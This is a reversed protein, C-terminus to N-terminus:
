CVKELEQTFPGPLLISGERPAMRPWCLRAVTGHGVRSRIHVCGGESDMIKKVVWLGLGTGVDKKTTFFPEFVKALHEKSIGSGNDAVVFQVMPRGSCEMPKARLHLRGDAELADLANGVLNGLVQRIEGTRASVRTDPSYHRVVEINKNKLKNRNLSLVEDFLEGVSASSREGAGRVFSLTQNAIDSARELERTAEVAYAQLAESKGGQSILFLLNSTSQLPNNLEHAITAALRGVSALRQTQLWTAEREKHMTIDRFVMVAGIMQGQNDRIPAASDSIPIQSGDRRLLVTHAALGVEEGLILAMGIPNEVTMGTNQNLLRFVEDSNRGNAEASKWGTAKEAAPNLSLVHGNLDTSIVADGISSLTVELRRREIAVRRNLAGVSGVAFSILVGVIVFFFAYVLDEPESIRLSVVPRLALVNILISTATAVMGVQIGGFMAACVVSFVLLPSFPSRDLPFLSHTIAVSALPLALALGYRTVIARPKDPWIVKDVFNFLVTM